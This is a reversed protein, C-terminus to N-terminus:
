FKIDGRGDEVINIQQKLKNEIQKIRTVVFM